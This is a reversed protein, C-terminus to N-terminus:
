VCNDARGLEVIWRRIGILSQYYSAEEDQLEDSIDVKPCYKNALPTFVKSTLKEGKKGLFEEGNNVVERIYQNSDFDWCEQGNHM